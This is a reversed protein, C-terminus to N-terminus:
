TLAALEAYTDGTATLLAYTGYASTLAAYTIGAITRTTLEMWAPVERAAAANTAATDPTESTYTTVRIANVDGGFPCEVTLYRTGTLTVGVRGAIAAVSGRPRTSENLIFARMEISPVGTVDIGGLACAFELMPWPLLDTRPLGDVAMGMLDVTPQVLDCLGALWTMLPYDLAEDAERMFEPLGSWAARAFAGVEPAAM